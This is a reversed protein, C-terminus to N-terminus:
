AAPTALAGEAIPTVSNVLWYTDGKVFTVFFGVHADTGPVTNELIAGLSGDPLLRAGRISMMSVKPMDASEDLTIPVPFRTLLQMALEPRDRAALAAGALEKLYDQSVLALVSFPQQANACAVLMRVTARIGALEDDTAAPGRPLSAEPVTATSFLPSNPNAQGVAGALDRLALPAVTCESAAPIDAAPTGTAPSASIAPALAAGFIIAAVITVAGLRMIGFITSHNM